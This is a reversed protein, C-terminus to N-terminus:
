TRLWRLFTPAIAQYTPTLMKWPFRDYIDRLADRERADAQRLVADGVAELGRTWDALDKMYGKVSAPADVSFSGLTGDALKGPIAGSKIPSIQITELDPLTVRIVLKAPFCLNRGGPRRGSTPFVAFVLGPKGDVPEALDPGIFDEELVAPGAKVLAANRAREITGPPFSKSM